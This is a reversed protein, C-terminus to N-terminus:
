SPVVAWFAHKNMLNLPPLLHFLCDERNGSTTSRKNDNTWCDECVQKMMFLTMDYDNISKRQWIITGCISTIDRHPLAIPPSKHCHRRTLYFTDRERGGKLVQWRRNTSYKPNMAYPFPLVMHSFYEMACTLKDMAHCPRRRNCLYAWRLLKHKFFLNLNFHCTLLLTM